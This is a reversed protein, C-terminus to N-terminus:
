LLQNVQSLLGELARFVGVHIRGSAARVLNQAEEEVLHLPMSATDRTTPTYFLTSPNFAVLCGRARKSPGAPRNQLETVAQVRTRFRLDDGNPLRFEPQWSPPAVINCCGYKEAEPRIANIYELPDGAWEQETPYFTPM